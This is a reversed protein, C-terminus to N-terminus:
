LSGRKDEVVIYDYECLRNRLLTVAVASTHSAPAVHTQARARM